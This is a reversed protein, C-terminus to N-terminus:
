VSLIRTLGHVGGGVGTGHLGLDAIYYSHHMM